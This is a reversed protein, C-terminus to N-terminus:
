NKRSKEAIKKDYIKKFIIGQEVSNVNNLPYTQLLGLSFKIIVIQTSRFKEVDWVGWIGDEWVFKLNM